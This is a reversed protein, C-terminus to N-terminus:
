IDLIYRNHNRLNRPFICFINRRTTQKRLKPLFSSDFLLDYQTVALEFKTASCTAHDNVGDRKGVEFMRKKLEVAVVSINLKGYVM